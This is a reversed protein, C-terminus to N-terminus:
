EQRVHCIMRNRKRINSNKHIFIRQPILKRMGSVQGRQCRQERQCRDTRLNYTRLKSKLADLYIVINPVQRNALTNNLQNLQQIMENRESLTSLKLFLNHSRTLFGLDDLINKVGGIVGKLSYENESGYNCVVMNSGQAKHYERFADLNQRINGLQTKITNISATEM